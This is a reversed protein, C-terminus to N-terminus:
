DNKALFSSPPETRAKSVQPMEVFITEKSEDATPGSQWTTQEIKAM